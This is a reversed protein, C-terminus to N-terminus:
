AGLVESATEAPKEPGVYRSVLWVLILAVGLIGLVIGFFPGKIDWGSNLVPSDPHLARKAPDLFVNGLLAWMVGVFVIDAIAKYV